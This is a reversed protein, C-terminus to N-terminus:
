LNIDFKGLEKELVQIMEANITIRNGRYNTLIQNFENPDSDMMKNGEIKKIKDGDVLFAPKTLFLEAHKDKYTIVVKTKQLLGMQKRQGYEILAEILYVSDKRIREFELIDPAKKTKYKKKDAKIKKQDM